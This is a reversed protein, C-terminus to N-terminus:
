RGRTRPDVGMGAALALQRAAAVLTASPSAVRTERGCAARERIFAHLLQLGAAHVREVRDGALVLPEDDELHLQLAAHLEAISEIGLDTQLSLQRM